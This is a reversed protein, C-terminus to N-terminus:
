RISVHLKFNTNESEITSVTIIYDGSKPLKRSWDDYMRDGGLRAGDPAIVDFVVDSGADGDIVKVAMTQGARAGILYTVSVGESIKGKVIASSTGALFRIRQATDDQVNGTQKELIADPLKDDPEEDFEFVPAKGSTKRYSGDASVGNPFGCDNKNQTVELKNGKFTLFIMCDPADEYSLLAKQGNELQIKRASIIGSNAMPGAPSEFESNGLFSVKIISDSIQLVRIENSRNGGKFEYIGTVGANQVPFESEEDFSKELQDADAPPQSPSNVATENGANSSVVKVASCATTAATLLCFLLLLANKMNLNPRKFNDPNM